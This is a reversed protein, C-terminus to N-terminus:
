NGANLLERLYPILDSALLGRQGGAAAARDAAAGHLCVGLRTALPPAVGQALLGGLVGSLVDGMGGSAMGPNGVDALEVEGATTCVLSGAGKLVVAGGFAAQLKSVAAFRDRQIVANDCGLLRAAEGPHPTLIWDDRRTQPLVRGASLINLADADMVLPLVANAAQQLMQESWASRGLGPGIVVVDPRTLLPALAQGSAVGTAMVEPCRAILAAVHEPRTAVSVLGAGMRAAAQAALAIAGGYGHDGGILLVHGFLGKHADAPRPPLQALLHPLKLRRVQPPQEAYIEAPVQLDDFVLEGTFAPGRGTLQGRKLGIFTVTVAAAVAVGLVSGTDACLGSPIDVALVPLGSANVLAIAQAYPERVEGRMGTGLLADVLIGGDVKLDAAFPQMPVGERRAFEFASLADGGLRASDGVQIVQVALRRQAALAAIIYGDGANNGSGCFVTLRDVGPWRALLTNFAARGARKMLRIGALDREEIAIRDLERVEAATYLATPLCSDPPNPM